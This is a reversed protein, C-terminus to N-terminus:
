TRRRKQGELNNRMSVDGELGTAVGLHEGLAHGLVVDVAPEDVGAPGAALVAGAFTAGEFVGAGDDVGDVGALEGFGVELGELGEVQGDRGGELADWALQQVRTKRPGIPRRELLLHLLQRPHKNLRKRQILLIHLLLHPQSPWLNLSSNTPHRPANIYLNDSRQNQNPRQLPHHVTNKQKTQSPRPNHLFSRM